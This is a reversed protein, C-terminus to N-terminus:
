IRDFRFKENEGKVAGFQFAGMEKKWFEFYGPLILVIYDLVWQEM